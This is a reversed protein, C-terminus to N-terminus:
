SLITAGSIFTERLLMMGTFPTKYVFFKVADNEQIPFFVYILLRIHGLLM